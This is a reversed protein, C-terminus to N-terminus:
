IMLLYDKPLDGTIDKRNEPDVLAEQEQMFNFCRSISFITYRRGVLRKKYFDEIRNKETLIM